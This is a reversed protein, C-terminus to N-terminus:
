IKGDNKLAETQNRKKPFLIHTNEPFSLNQYTWPYVLWGPPKPSTKRNAPFWLFNNCIELVAQFFWVLGIFKKRQFAAWLRHFAIKRMIQWRRWARLQASIVCQRTFYSDVTWRHYPKSDKSVVTTRNRCWTKYVFRWVDEKHMWHKIHAIRWGVRIFQNKLNRTDDWCSNVQVTCATGASDEHLQQSWKLFNVM